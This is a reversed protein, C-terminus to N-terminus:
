SNRGNNLKELLHKKWRNLDYWPCGVCGQEDGKNKGDWIENGSYYWKLGMFVGRIGDKVCADCYRSKWMNTQNSLLQFKNRIQEESMSDPNPQEPRKWRQSPFKHDIILEKNSRKIDFCIETNKLVKKIREKLRESMSARLENGEQFRYRVFPLMILLDHMQRQNCVPCHRRQSCIIYGNTKLAKLRAAPQPNVMPVPGHVRCEWEGSYLAKLVKYTQSNKNNWKSDSELRWAKRNLPNLHSYLADISSTIDESSYEIGQRELYKPLAGNWTSNNYKFEVTVFVDNTKEATFEEGIKKSM